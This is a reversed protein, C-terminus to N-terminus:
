QPVRVTEHNAYVTTEHLYVVTTFYQFSKIMLSNLQGKYFGFPSWDSCEFYDLNVDEKSFEQYCSQMGTPHM